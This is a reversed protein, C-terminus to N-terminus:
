ERIVGEDLLTKLLGIKTQYFISPIFFGGGIGLVIPNISDEMEVKKHLDDADSGAELYEDYHTEALYRIYGGIGTVVSGGAIWLNRKIKLSRIEKEISNISKLSASVTTTKGWDITIKKELSIYGQKHILITYSGIPINELTRPTTSGQQNPMFLTFEFETNAFDTSKVHISGTKRVLVADITRVDGGKLTIVETYPEFNQKTLTIQYEGPNLVDSYIYRKPTIHGEFQRFQGNITIDAGTPNSNITLQPTLELTVEIKNVKGKEVLVDSIHNLFGTKKVKLRHTGVTLDKITLPTTGYEKGDVSVKGDPTSFVNLNATFSGLQITIRNIVDPEVTVMKKGYYNEKEAQVLHEGASINEITLPTVGDIPKNDIRITAGSPNSILYISGEGYLAPLTEPSRGTILQNVVDSMGKTLLGGIEGTYDYSIIKLIEGTEIDIIRVTVSFVSGVKGISGGIMQKVGIMKGVEVVCENSICGTQQFGQEQLIEEMKGRELVRYKGTNFLEQRFRDALTRVESQPIGQPEFDLVAITTQASSISLVVLMLATIILLTHKM